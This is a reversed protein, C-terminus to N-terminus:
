VRLCPHGATGHLQVCRALSESSLRRSGCARSQRRSCPHGAMPSWSAHRVTGPVTSVKLTRPLPGRSGEVHSVSREQAQGFASDNALPAQPFTM